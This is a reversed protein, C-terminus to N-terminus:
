FSRGVLIGYGVESLDTSGASTAAVDAAESYDVTVGAYFQNAFQLLGAVETYFGLRIYQGTVTTGNKYNVREYIRHDAVGAGAYIVVAPRIAKFWRLGLRHQTYNIRLGTQELETRYSHANRYGVTIALPLSAIRVGGSVAYYQSQDFNYDNLGTTTQRALATHKNLMTAQNSGRLLHIHFRDTLLSTAEAQISLAFIILYFLFLIM